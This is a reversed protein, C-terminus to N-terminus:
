PIHVMTKGKKEASFLHPPKKQCKLTLSLFIESERVDLAEGKEERKKITRSGEGKRGERGGGREFTPYCQHFFALPPSFSAQREKKCEGERRVVAILSLSLVQLPAPNALPNIVLFNRALHFM